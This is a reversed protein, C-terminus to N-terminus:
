RRGAHHASAPNRRRCRDDLHSFACDDAFSDFAIRRGDPSWSPSGQASGPRAHAAAPKIRRGRRGLHRDTDGSRASGFVLRRGDPSLRPEMEAFTSGVVLQVPRGVEFRYIDADWSVRTFALRDRSLAMAPATAGAGQSRSASPRAPGTLAWAGSIASTRRRPPTSWRAGTVLGPSPISSVAVAADDTAAPSGFAYACCETRGSLYRM